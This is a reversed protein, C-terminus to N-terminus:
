FGHSFRAEGVLADVRALAGEVTAARHLVDRRRGDLPKGALESSWGEGLDMCVIPKNHQWALAIESLTGSGGGIAVVVDAMASLVVNRAFNLGTPMVIEVWPNAASADLGPLVGIVCGEFGAPAERAGRSAAEMIGGLGGTAVRYGRESLHRGLERATAYGLESATNNGIVAVIPRRETETNSTM